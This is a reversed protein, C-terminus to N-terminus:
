AGVLSLVTRISKSWHSCLRAIDGKALTVSSSSFMIQLDLSDRSDEIYVPYDSLQIILIIELDKM